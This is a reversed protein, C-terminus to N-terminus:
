GRSGIACVSSIGPARGALARHLAIVQAIDCDGPRLVTCKQIGPLTLADSGALAQRYLELDAADVTCDDNVDGCNEGACGCSATPEVLEPDLPCTDRCDPVGGGDSDVDATGCGCVGARTKDPDDPCGDAGSSSRLVITGAPHAFAVAEELVLSGFGSVVGKEPNSGTAGILVSDGVEFNDTSIVDLSTEGPLLPSLLRTALDVPERPEGAANYFDPELADLIRSSIFQHGFENPHLTGKWDLQQRLSEGLQRIWRGDPSATEVCYGNRGFGAAIGGIYQWKKPGIANALATNLGDVIAGRAWELEESDIQAPTACRGDSHELISDCSSGFQNQTPDPYETVYIRRPDLGLVGLSSGLRDYAASLAEIRLPVQDELKPPVGRM